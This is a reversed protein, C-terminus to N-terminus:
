ETPSSIIYWVTWKLYSPFSMTNVWYEFKVDKPWNPPQVNALEPVEACILKSAMKFADNPISEGHEAKLCTMCERTLECRLNDPVSEGKKVYEKLEPSMPFKFSKQDVSSPQIQATSAAIKKARPRQVTSSIRKLRPVIPTLEQGLDSSLNETESEVSM